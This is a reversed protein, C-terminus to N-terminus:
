QLTVLMKLKETKLVPGQEAAQAECDARTEQKGLSRPIQAAAVLLRTLDWNHSMWCGSVWIEWM